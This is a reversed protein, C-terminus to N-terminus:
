LCTSSHRTSKGWLVCGIEVCLEAQRHVYPQFEEGEVDSSWGHWVFNRVKSLVPDYDTWRKILQPSLPDVQLVEFLLSTDGSEPVNAPAVPLPLHSLVDANVHDKGPRHSISYNYASLTLAWRQIKSSATAPIAQYEELLHQLPKHNSLILFHRDLLYQHFKTVGILIALAEKDLQSYQREAPTYPAPPTPLQNIQAMRGMTPCLQVLVMSHRM